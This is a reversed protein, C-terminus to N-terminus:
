TWGQAPRVIPTLCPQWGARLFRDQVASAHPGCCLVFHTGRIPQVFWAPPAGCVTGEPTLQTCISKGM